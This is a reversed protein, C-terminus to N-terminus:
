LMGPYRPLRRPEIQSLRPNKQDKVSLRPEDIPWRIGIEPDDFAVGLECGPHYVDSCKYVFTAYDSTVCFGHAFGPPVYLQHHNQASLLAGVWRGFTPSGVRLDVAVDFVEGELASVLKGQDHPRQLHLGRLVGKCSRSVNDQVFPLQVGAKAYREAQYTELFFGREDGFVQPEILLVEPIELPSVKM